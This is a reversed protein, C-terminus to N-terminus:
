SSRRGSRSSRVLCLTRVTRWGWSRLFLTGHSHACSDSRYQAEDRGVDTVFQVRQDHQAGRHGRRELVLQGSRKQYTIDEGHQRLIVVLQAQGLLESQLVVAAKERLVGCPNPEERPNLAVLEDRLRGRTELHLVDIEVAIRNPRPEARRREAFRYSDHDLLVVLGGLKKM